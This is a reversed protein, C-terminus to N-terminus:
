RLVAISKRISHVNTVGGGMTRLLSLAASLDMVIVFNPPLSPPVVSVAPLSVLSPAPGMHVVKPNRKQTPRRKTKTQSAAVSIGLQKKYEYYVGFRVGCRAAADRQSIGKKRLADIKKILDRKESDTRRIKNM